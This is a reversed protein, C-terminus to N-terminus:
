KKAVVVPAMGMSNYKIKEITFGAVELQYRMREETCFNLYNIPVIDGFLAREKLFDEACIVSDINDPPPPIFSILLTGEPKLAKYFSQYLAILRGESSEYMNLGNSTLLDFACNINLNWADRQLLTVQEAPFGCDKANKQAFDLSEQDADIGVLHINQYSSYDLFLLDDMLGCPVSALTMNSKMKKRIEAQFVYFRERAMVYFSKNLLWFELACLSDIDPNNRFIYATWYGNLGRNHLLFRGLNFSILEHLLDVTEELPLFLKEKKELRTITDKVLQQTLEDDPIYSTTQHSIAASM